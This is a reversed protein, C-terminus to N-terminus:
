RKSARTSAPRLHEEFFALDQAAIDRLARETARYRSVVERGFPTLRAGGGQRGGQATAASAEGFLTNTEELLLWARRYSMGLAKAAGTISGTTEIAELM